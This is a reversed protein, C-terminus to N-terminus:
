ARLSFSIGLIEDKIAKLISPMSEAVELSLEMSWEILMPEIGIVIVEPPIIRTTLSLVSPFDFGHMSGIVDKKTCDNINVRYITGPKSGGKMADVIIVKDADEIYPLADLIATGIDLRTVNQLENKNEELLKQIAHVGVGEDALLLNGIGLVLTKMSKSRKM